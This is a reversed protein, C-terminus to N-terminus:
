EIGQEKLLNLLIEGHCPKPNKESACHCGLVKGKLEPLDKILNPQNVIWEKYMQIVEARTGHFGIVFPNGWKSNPGRGIYVDYASEGVKVLRRKPTLEM